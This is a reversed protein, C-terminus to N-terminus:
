LLLKRQLMNQTYGYPMTFMTSNDGTFFVRKNYTDNAFKKVSLESFVQRTHKETRIRFQPVHRVAKQEHQLLQDIFHQFTQMNVENAALDNRLFFGRAKTIHYTSGDSRQILMCYNKPGLSYFYRIKGNVEHKFQGYANGFPLPLSKDKKMSLVISDTDTYYLTAGHQICIEFWKHMAIRAASTVHSGLVVSGKTNAKNYGARRKIRAQVVYDSVPTVDVLETSVDYFLRDLDDQNSVFVQQDLDADQSLKGLMSNSGLKFADRLQPNNIVNDKTLNLAKDYFKMHNNVSDCYTQKDIDNCM